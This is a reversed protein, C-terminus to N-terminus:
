GDSQQSEGQPCIRTKVQWSESELRQSTEERCNEKQQKASSVRM